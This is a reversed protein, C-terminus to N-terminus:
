LDFFIKHREQESLVYGLSQYRPVRNVLTDSAYKSGTYTLMKGEVDKFFSAHHILVGQWLASKCCIFDSMEMVDIPGRWDAMDGYCLEVIIGHGLDYTAVRPNEDILVSGCSELLIRVAQLSDQNFFFIDYDKATKGEFFSRIAGGALCAGEGATELIRRIQGPLADWVPNECAISYQM